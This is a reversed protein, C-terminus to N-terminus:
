KGALKASARLHRLVWLEVKGQITNEIEKTIEKTDPRNQLAQGVREELRGIDERIETKFDNFAQLLKDHNGDTKEQKKFFMDWLKGGVFGLIVLMNGWFTAMAKWQEIYTNDAVKTLESASAISLFLSILLLM